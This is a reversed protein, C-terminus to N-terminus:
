ERRNVTGVIYVTDLQKQIMASINFNHTVSQAPGQHM